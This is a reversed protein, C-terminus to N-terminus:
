CLCYVLRNVNHSNNRLIHRLILANYSQSRLQTSGNSDKLGIINDHVKFQKDVYSFPKGINTNRINLFCLSYLTRMCLLTIHM